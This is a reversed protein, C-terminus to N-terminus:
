VNTCATGDPKLCSTRWSNVNITRDTNNTISGVLTSVMQREGSGGAKAIIRLQRAGIGTTISVRLGDITAQQRIALKGTVVGGLLYARAGNTADFDIKANPTFVGGHIMVRPTTGNEMSMVIDDVDLTSLNSQWVGPWEGSSGTVTQVSLDQQGESPGGDHRSFLELRGSPNTVEIRSSGGLIFKVGTGGVSPSTVVSTDTACATLLTTAAEDAHAKGGVVQKKRIDIVGVDDFFYVGSRFYNDDALELSTYRGPSFVRCDDDGNGDAPRAAATALAVDPAAHPISALVDAATKSDDCHYGYPPSPTVTLNAPKDADSSCTSGSNREYVDGNTVTVDDISNDIGTSWVPGNVSKAFNPGPTTFSPTSSAVTVLAYGSSGTVSGSLVECTITPTVGNFSPVGPLSVVGAQTNPCITDDNRVRQLAWDIASDASYAKNQTNRVVSTNRFNAGANTFVAALILGFVVMFVLSIILTAGEERGFPSAPRRERVM